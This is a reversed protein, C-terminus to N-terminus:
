DYWEIDEISDGTTEDSIPVSKRQIESYKGNRDNTLTYGESIDVFDPTSESLPDVFVDKKREVDGQDEDRNEKIESTQIDPDNINPNEQQKKCINYVTSRYVIESKTVLVKMGFAKGSVSTALDRLVQCISSPSYWDGPLRDYALGCAIINHISFPHQLGPKDLFSHVIQMFKADKKLSEMDRPAHWKEGLHHRMLTQAWLMQGSRIMCGWGADDTYNYPSLKPVNCRYSLWMLNSGINAGVLDEYDDDVPKGLIWKLKEHETCFKMSDQPSIHSSFLTFSSAGTPNSVSSKGQYNKYNQRM